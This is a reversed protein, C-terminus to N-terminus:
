RHIVDAIKRLLPRMEGLLVAMEEKTKFAEDVFQRRWVELWFLTRGSDVTLVTPVTVSTGGVGITLSREGGAITGVPYAARFAASAGLVAIRYYGAGDRHVNLVQGYEQRQTLENMQADVVTVGAVVVAALVALGRRLM